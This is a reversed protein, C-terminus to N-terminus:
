RALIVYLAFAGVLVLVLSGLGIGYVVLWSRGRAGKRRHATIAEGQLTKAAYYMALTQGVALFLGSVNEPLAIAVLVLAALGVVGFCLSRWAASPSGLARYNLALLISGGIPTGLFTAVAVQWADYLRPV